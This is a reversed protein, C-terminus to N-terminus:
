RIAGGGESHPAPTFGPARLGRLMRISDSVLKMPVSFYFRNRELFHASNTCLQQTHLASCRWASVM